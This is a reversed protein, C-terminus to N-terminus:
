PFADEMAERLQEELPKRANNVKLSESVSDGSAGHLSDRGAADGDAANSAETGSAGTNDDANSAGMVVAVLAEFEDSDSEGKVPACEQSDFEGDSDGPNEKQARLLLREGKEDERLAILRDLTELQHRMVQTNDTPRMAVMMKDITELDNTQFTVFELSFNSCFQMGEFTVNEVTQEFSNCVEQAARGAKAVYEFRYSTKPRLPLPKEFSCSCDKWSGTVRFGGSEEVQLTGIKEELFCKSGIRRLLVPKDVKFFCIPRDERSETVEYPVYKFELEHLPKGVFLTKLVEPRSTQQLTPDHVLSLIDRKRLPLDHRVRRMAEVEQVPFLGSPLVEQQFLDERILLFRM